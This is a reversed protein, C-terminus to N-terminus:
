KFDERVESLDDGFKLPKHMRLFSENNSLALHYQLVGKTKLLKYKGKLLDYIKNRIINKEEKSASKVQSFLELFHPIQITSAYVADANIKQNYLLIEIHTKLDRLDNELELNIIKNKNSESFSYVSMSAVLFVVVFYLILKLKNKIM